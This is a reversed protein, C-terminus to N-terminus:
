CRGVKYKNVVKGVRVGITDQGVLSGNEVRARIRELEKESTPVAWPAELQLPSVATAPIIIVDDLGAICGARSRRAASQWPTPCVLGGRALQVSDLVM